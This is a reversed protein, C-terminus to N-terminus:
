DEINQRRARRRLDEYRIKFLGLPFNENLRFSVSILRMILSFLKSRSHYKEM